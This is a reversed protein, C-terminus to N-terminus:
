GRWMNRGLLFLNRAGLCSWLPRTPDTLIMRTRCNQVQNGKGGYEPYHYLLGFLASGVWGCTGMLGVVLAVHTTIWSRKGPCFVTLRIRPGLASDIM